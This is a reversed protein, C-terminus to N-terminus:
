ALSRESAIQSRLSKIEQNGVCSRLAHVSAPLHTAFPWGACVYRRAGLEELKKPPAVDDSLVLSVLLLVLVLM